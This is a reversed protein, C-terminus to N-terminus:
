DERTLIEMVRSDKNQCLNKLVKVNTLYDEDKVKELLALCKEFEGIERYIEARLMTDNANDKTAIELLRKYNEM